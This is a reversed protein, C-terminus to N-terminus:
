DQALIPGLFWWLIAASGVVLALGTLLAAIRHQRPASVAWAILGVGAILGAFPAAEILEVIM